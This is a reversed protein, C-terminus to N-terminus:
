KGLVYLTVNDFSLTAGAAKGAENLAQAVTIKENDLYAQDM